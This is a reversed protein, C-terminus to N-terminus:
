SAGLLARYVRRTEFENFENTTSVGRRRNVSRGFGILILLARVVCSECEIRKSKGSTPHIYPGATGQLILIIDGRFTFLLVGLGRELGSGRSKGFHMVFRGPVGARRM